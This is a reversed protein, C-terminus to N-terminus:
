DMPIASDSVATLDINIFDIGDPIEAGLIATKEFTSAEKPKLVVVWQNGETTLLEAPLKPAVHVQVMVRVERNTMNTLHFGLPTSTGARFSVAQKLSRFEVKLEPAVHTKLRLIVQGSSQSMYKKSQDSLDSQNKFCGVVSFSLYLNLLFAGVRAM